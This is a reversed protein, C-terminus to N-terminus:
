LFFHEIAKCKNITQSSTFDRLEDYFGTIKEGVFFLRFAQVACASLCTSVETIKSVNLAPPRRPLLPAGLTSVTFNLQLLVRLM